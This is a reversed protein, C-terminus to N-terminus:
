GQPAPKAKPEPPDPIVKVKPEEMEKTKKSKKGPEIQEQRPEAPNQATPVYDAITSARADTVRGQGNFDITWVTYHRPAQHDSFVVERAHSAQSLQLGPEPAKMLGAQQEAANPVRPEAGAIVAYTMALHLWHGEPEIDRTAVEVPVAQNFVSTTRKAGTASEFPTAGGYLVPAVLVRGAARPVVATFLFEGKSGKRRYHLVVADPIEPCIVQDWTWHGSNLDYGWFAAETAIERHNAKVVSSDQPDMQEAPRVEFMTYPPNAGAGANDSQRAWVPAAFIGAALAGMCVLRACRHWCSLKLMAM